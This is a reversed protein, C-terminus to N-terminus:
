RDDLPRTAKWTYVINDTSNRWAQTKTWASFTEFNGNTNEDVVDSSSKRHHRNM